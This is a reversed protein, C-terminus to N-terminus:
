KKKLEEISEEMKKTQPNVGITPLLKIAKLIFTRFKGVIEDDKPTPTLHAIATAVVVLGALIHAGYKVVEPLKEILGEM